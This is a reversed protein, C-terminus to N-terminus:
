LTGIFLVSAWMHWTSPDTDPVYSVSLLHYSNLYIADKCGDCNDQNGM